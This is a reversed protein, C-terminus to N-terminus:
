KSWYRHTSFVSVNNEKRNHQKKKKSFLFINSYFVELISFLATIRPRINKKTPFTISRSIIKVPVDIPGNRKGGPKNSNLWKRVCM